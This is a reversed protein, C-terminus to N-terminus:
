SGDAAGAVGLTLFLTGMTMPFAFADFFARPQRIGGGDLRRARGGPGQCRCGGRPSLPARSSSRPRPRGRPVRRHGRHRRQSPAAPVRQRLHPVETPLDGTWPRVVSTGRRFSWAVDYSQTRSQREPRGRATFLVERHGVEALRPVVLTITAVGVFALALVIRRQRKTWAIMYAGIGIAAGLYASRSSSVAIIAAILVAPMWRVIAARQRHHFGVHLALPLLISLLAGEIPSTAMGAPRVLGNRPATGTTAIATLGPVSIRDAFSQHTLFQAIGLLALLGGAVAMRWVFTELRARSPIGDHAMLLTGSWSLLALIAVDAPSVEDHNMPHAMALVFTIGICIIFLALAVRVPRMRMPGPWPLGVWFLLWMACSCLGVLM